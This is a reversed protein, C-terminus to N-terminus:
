DVRQTQCMFLDRLSYLIRLQWDFILRKNMAEILRTPEKVNPAYVLAKCPYYNYRKHYGNGKDM